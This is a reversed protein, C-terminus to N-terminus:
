SQPLRVAADLRITTGNLFPNTVISEVLRAYEQAHGLRSPFPINATITARVDEPLTETMATEFLGPAIAVVRIGARAFQ